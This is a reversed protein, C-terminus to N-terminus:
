SYILQAYAGETLSSYPFGDEFMQAESNVCTSIELSFIVKYLIEETENQSLNMHKFRFPYGPTAYMFQM